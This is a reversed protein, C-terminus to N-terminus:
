RRLMYTVPVQLEPTSALDSYIRLTGQVRGQNARALPHNGPMAEGEIVAFSEGQGNVVSARLGEIDIEARTLKFVTGQRHPTVRVRTQLPRGPQVVGLNVREMGLVLDAVLRIDVELNVTPVAPVNTELRVTDRYRGVPGDPRVTFVVQATQPDGGPQIAIDLWNQPWTRPQIELSAVEGSRFTYTQSSTEGARLTSFSLLTQNPEMYLPVKIDATVLYDVLGHRPDNTTIKIFKIQPGQFSMSNFLVDMVASGGPPVEQVALSPVTCFCTSKVESIRLVQDGTNRITVQAERTENEQLVGFALHEPELELRPQAQSSGPLLGLVLAITLYRM